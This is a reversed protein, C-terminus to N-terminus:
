MSVVFRRDNAFPFSRHHTVPHPTLGQNQLKHERMSIGNGRHPNQPAWVIKSGSSKSACVDTTPYNTRCPPLSSAYVHYIAGPYEVRLHRAM